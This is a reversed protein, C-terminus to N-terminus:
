KGQHMHVLTKFLEFVICCGFGQLRPGHAGSVLFICCVKQWHGQQKHTTAHGEKKHAFVNRACRLGLHCGRRGPGRGGDRVREQARLSKCRVRCEHTPTSLGRTPWGLHLMRCLWTLHQIDCWFLFAMPHEGSPATSSQSCCVCMICPFGVSAKKNKESCAFDCSSWM